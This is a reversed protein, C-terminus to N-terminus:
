LLPRVVLVENGRELEKNTLFLDRKRDENARHALVDLMGQLRLLATARNRHQSREDRSVVAVGTPVHVARVASDTTNVHQGGPGGARLTEIRVDDPHIQESAVAAPDDIRQVGVFWNQRQYGKRVPSKFVFRVTGVFRASVEAAGEGSLHLVASKPGHGDPSAGLSAQSSVGREASEELIHEVLLRVAIRCEVPGNGSTVHLFVDGSM